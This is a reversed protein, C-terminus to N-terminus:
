PAAPSVSPAAPNVADAHEPAAPGAPVDVRAGAVDPKFIKTELARNYNTWHSVPDRDSEIEALFMNVKADLNDLYHVAVAEPMAPLKPSGFAYCGHHSLVIHQLSWLIRDPFRKGTRKAVADAKKQVWAFAIAIHGLLQGSDTYSITTEYALEHTKGIDHLFVGALILDLSLKPYLPIVRRAVELVNLTHELLGGVYAHHMTAAAPARRFREMLDADALFESVLAAVDPQKIDGLIEVVRRWMADVDGETTPLFDSPDIEDPSVTRIAEIIFQLNGKYSETRGKLRVFGGDPIANYMAETAQWVRALLQGTRDALVAHIYLSGQTTTRLDKSRVAFVADDILEGPRLEQIYRRAM